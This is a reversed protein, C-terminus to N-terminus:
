KTGSLAKKMETFFELKKYKQDAIVSADADNSFDTAWEVFTTHDDTVERLKIQGQISTV